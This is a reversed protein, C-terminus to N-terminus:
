GASCIKGRGGSCLCVTGCDWGVKWEWAQRWGCLNECVRRHVSKDSAVKATYAPFQAVDLFDEHCFFAFHGPQLNDRVEVQELTGEPFVVSLSM